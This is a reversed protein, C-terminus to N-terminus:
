HRQAVFANDDPKIGVVRKSGCKPCKGTKCLEEIQFVHICMLCRVAPIKNCWRRFRIMEAIVVIFPLAIGIVVRVLLESAKGSSQYHKYGNIGIFVGVTGSVIALCLYTFKRALPSRAGTKLPIPEIM